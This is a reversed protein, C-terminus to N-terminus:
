RFRYERFVSFHVLCRTALYLIQQQLKLSSPKKLFRIFKMISHYPFRFEIQVIM